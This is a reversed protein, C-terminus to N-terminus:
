SVMSMASPTTVSAVVQQPVRPSGIVAATATAGASSLTISSVTDGGVLGNTSFETGAFSLTDGYTKSLNNATVTLPAVTINLDAGTYSITYNSGASLTGQNIAYSGVNEGAARTLSGSITDGGVLGSSSYTLAPDAVGYTKSKADATVTLSAPTISLDAGTYSITYNSGADLTGQNIAYNGVNEGVLRTLSGSITDGGVLGSSSYTLAPDAVGYTKSKADATVTLSAPTISLDAGTYSITYNSGADLTGQNIAYSGVNEGVLRTLSGSITDGGVLGSSSYTLAPDAVGYTKSKADATVTLPAATISLDAGTYSISYNSGADLTGQNIAYSGVNEGVLRTLSGSITDGGVLGSSSYTLAPDAVGYTKSKADATVTLPAVTINLDAGTYSITYNSGADLTGQNIAYSGVNEGVLRILSGSITDGGVLGSSSYTLAPDAVGYTKSKADATVTLGKATVTLTQQVDSAPNYTADGAQSATITSSGAGVIHIQGGVITAVSTNSSAYAVTLGSSASAGPAFDADGYTKAPLPNFTITQDLMFTIAVTASRSTSVNGAADKAWAYATKTGAGSFTFTSPATATWGADGPLPATASETIKYGTVAVIDSATFATVNVTLSTATAPMTFTNVTPATTDPVTVTIAQEIHAKTDSENHGVGLVMVTYTGPPTGAPVTIRADTGMKNAVGDLDGASANDFACNRNGNDWSTGTYNISYGSPSNPFEGSMSYSVNWSVGGAADWTSSWGTLSPSNATGAAVTWGSPVGLEPATGTYKSTSYVMNTYMWDVEFTTGAAVTISTGQTGNLAVSLVAAPTTTAAGGHCSASSCSAGKSTWAQAPVNLLLLFGLTLLFVAVTGLLTLRAHGSMNFLPFTVESEFKRAM